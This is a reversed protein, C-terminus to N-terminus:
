AVIRHKIGTELPFIYFVRASRWAWSKADQFKIIYWLKVQIEFLNFIDEMNICIRDLYAHLVTITIEINTCKVYM